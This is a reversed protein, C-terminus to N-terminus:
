TIPRPGDRPLTLGECVEHVEDLNLKQLKYTVMMLDYQYKMDLIVHQEPTRNVRLTKELTHLEDLYLTRKRHRHIVNLNAGTRAIWYKEIKNIQKKNKVDYFGLEEITLREDPTTLIANYIRTRCTVPDKKWTKSSYHSVMRQQIDKSQGVYIGNDTSIKYM